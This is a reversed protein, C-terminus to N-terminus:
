HRMYKPYTELIPVSETSSLVPGCEGETERREPCRWVPSSLGRIEIM